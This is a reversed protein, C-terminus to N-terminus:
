EAGKPNSDTNSDRFQSRNWEVQEGLMFDQWSETHLIGRAREANYTALRAIRANRDFEEDTPGVIKRVFDEIM